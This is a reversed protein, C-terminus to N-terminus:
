KTTETKGTGAPGAPSGGMRFSLATTLDEEDQAIEQVLVEAEKEEKALTVSKKRANKGRIGAQIKVVKKKAEEKLEEEHKRQSRKLFSAAKRQLSAKNEHQEINLEWYKM